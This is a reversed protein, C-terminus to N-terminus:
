CGTHTFDDNMFEEDSYYCGNILLQKLNRKFLGNDKNQKIYAPLKNYFKGGAITPRSNHIELKHVYQHYDLTSRTNHAHFKYNTL